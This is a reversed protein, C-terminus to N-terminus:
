RSVELPNPYSVPQGEGLKAVRAKAWPSLTVTPDAGNHVRELWFREADTRESLHVPTGELETLFPLRAIVLLRNDVERRSPLSADQGRGADGGEANVKDVESNSDVATGIDLISNGAIRLSTLAPFVEAAVRGLEDLSKTWSVLRNGTLSLHTLQQLRPLDAVGSSVAEGDGIDLALSAFYNDSLVLEQLSNLCVYTCVVSPPFPLRGRSM